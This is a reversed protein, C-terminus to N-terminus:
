LVYFENLIERCSYGRKSLMLASYVSMGSNCGDGRIDFSYLRQTYSMEFAPSRIDFLRRFEECSMDIGCVNLSLANGDADRRINSIWKSEDPPIILSPYATLMIEAIGDATLQCTSHYYEASRDKECYLKKVLPNGSDEPSITIGSSIRCVPLFATGEQVTLNLSIAYEASHEAYKRYIGTEAGFHQISDKEDMYEVYPYGSDFSKGARHLYRLSCDLAVAVANIGESEDDAPPEDLTKLCSLVCGTLFEKYAYENNRYIITVPRQPENASSFCVLIIIPLVAAATLTAILLYLHKKKM